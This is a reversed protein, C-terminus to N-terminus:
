QQYKFKKGGDQIEIKVISDFPIKRVVGGLLRLGEGYLTDNRLEVTDFYMIRKKGNKQTVRMEISPSNDIYKTNGSKDVVKITKISNAKYVINSNVFLPNNVKVDQMTDGTTVFQERFSGPAVTYTTCSYLAALCLILIIKKM